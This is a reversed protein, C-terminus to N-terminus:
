LSDFMIHRTHRLVLATKILKMNGDVDLEGLLM